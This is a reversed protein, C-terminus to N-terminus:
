GSLSSQIRDCAVSAGTRTSEYMALTTALTERADDGTVPPPLGEALARFIERFQM